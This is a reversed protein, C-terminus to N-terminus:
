YNMKGEQLMRSACGNGNDDYGSANPDCNSSYGSSGDEYEDFHVGTYRDNERGYEAVFFDRGFVNPGKKGNTDFVFMIDYRDGRVSLVGGDALVVTGDLGMEGLATGISADYSFYELEGTYYNTDFGSYNGDWGGLYSYSSAFCDTAKDCKKVYKMFPLIYNSFPDDGANVLSEEGTEYNYERTGWNWDNPEGYEAVANDMTTAITNYMKMFQTYLQKKQYKQVLVPITLAAVVGIVALTILVEALTFGKKM